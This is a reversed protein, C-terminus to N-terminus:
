KCYLTERRHQISLSLCRFCIPIYPTFTGSSYDVIRQRHGSLLCWPIFVRNFFKFFFGKIGLLRVFVAVGFGWRRTRVELCQCPMGQPARAVGPWRPSPNTTFPPRPRGSSRRSVSPTSRWARPRCTRCSAPARRRWSPRPSGARWSTARRLCSAAGARARRPGATTPLERMQFINRVHASGIAKEFWRIIWDSRM